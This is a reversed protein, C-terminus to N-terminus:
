VAERCSVDLGDIQHRLSRPQGPSVSVSRSGIQSVPPRTFHMPRETEQGVRGAGVHICNGDYTMVSFKSVEYIIILYIINNSWGM